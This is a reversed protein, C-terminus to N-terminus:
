IEHVKFGNLNRQTFLGRVITPIHLRNFVLGGNMMNTHIWGPKHNNYEIILRTNPVNDMDDYLDFLDPHLIPIM